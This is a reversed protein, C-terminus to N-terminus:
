IGNFDRASYFLFREVVKASFVLMFCLSYLGPSFYTQFLLSLLCALGAILLFLRFYFVRRYKEFLLHLGEKEKVSNSSFKVFRSIALALEGGLFILVGVTIISLAENSMLPDLPNGLTLGALLGGLILATLFFSIPTYPTNWVPVTRLMYLRSMSYVLLFGCIAALWAIVSRTYSFGIQGFLLYAYTGSTLTFLLGFIIERSLWSSRFKLIAQYAILPSGLHTLSILLSVLMIVVVTMLSPLTLGIVENSEYHSSFFLAVAMLAWFAGVAMQSLITFIILSWKKM